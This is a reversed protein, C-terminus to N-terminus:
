FFVLDFFLQSQGRVRDRYTVLGVLISRLRPSNKQKKNETNERFKPLEQYQFYRFKPFICFFVSFCEENLDVRVM